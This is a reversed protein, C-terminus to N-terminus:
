HLHSAQFYTDTHAGLLERCEAAVQLLVVVSTYVEAKCIVSSKDTHDSSFLLPREVQSFDDYNIHLQGGAAEYAHRQLLYWLAELDEGGLVVESRMQVPSPTAM